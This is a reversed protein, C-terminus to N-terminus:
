RGELLRQAAELADPPVYLRGIVREDAYRQFVQSAERLHIAKRSDKGMPDRVFIPKARRRKGGFREYRSLRGTSSARIVDFGAETLLVAEATLDATRDDGHRELARRYPRQEVVRRAMPHHSHRLHQMLSADDVHLYADLDAPMEWENDDSTVYRRLLEEYIVSKHHFYVMLFMHHRALLFHDFAYVARGHM